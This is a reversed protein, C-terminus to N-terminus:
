MKCLIGDKKETIHAHFWMFIQKNDYLNKSATDFIHALRGLPEIKPIATLIDGQKDPPTTLIVGPGM